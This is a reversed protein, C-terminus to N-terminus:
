LSMYLIPNPKFLSFEWLGVRFVIIPYHMSGFCHVQESYFLYRESTKTIMGDCLLEYIKHSRCHLYVLYVRTCIYSLHLFM